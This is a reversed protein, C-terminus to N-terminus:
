ELQVWYSNSDANSSSSIKSNPDQTSTSLLPFGKLNFSTPLARRDTGGLVQPASNGSQGFALPFSGLLFSNSYGSDNWSSDDKCSQLQLHRIAPKHSSVMCPAAILNQRHRSHRSNPPVKQHAQNTIEMQEISSSQGPESFAQVQVQYEM